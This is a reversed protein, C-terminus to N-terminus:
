FFRYIVKPIVSIAVFIGMIGLAVPLVVALNESVATQLPTVMESTVIATGLM